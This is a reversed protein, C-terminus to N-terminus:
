SLPYDNSSISDRVKAADVGLSQLLNGADGKQVIALFLHELSRASHHLEDAEKRARDLIWRAEDSRKPPASGAVLVTPVLTEGIRNDVDRKLRDITVDKPLLGSIKDPKVILAAALLLLSEVYPIGRREAERHALVVTRVFARTSESHPRRLFRALKFRMM